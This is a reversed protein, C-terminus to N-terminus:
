KELNDIDDTAPGATGSSSGPDRRISTEEGGSGPATTSKLKALFNFQLIEFIKEALIFLYPVKGYISKINEGISVFERFCFLVIPVISFIRLITGLGFTIPANVEDIIFGNNIAVRTVGYSLMLWLYLSIFKFITFTVKSSKLRHKEYGETDDEMKAIKSRKDAAVSGTWWDVIIFFCTLLLLGISVGLFNMSLFKMLVELSLATTLSAGILSGSKYGTIMTKFSTLLPTYYEMMDDVFKMTNIQYKILLSSRIKIYM